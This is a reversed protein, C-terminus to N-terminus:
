RARNIYPQKDWEELSEWEEQTLIRRAAERFYANRPKVGKDILKILRNAGARHKFHSHADCGKRAVIYGSSVHKLEFM